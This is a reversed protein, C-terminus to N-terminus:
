TGSASTSSGGCKTADITALYAYRRHSVRRAEIVQGTSPGTVILVGLSPSSAPGPTGVEETDLIGNAPVRESWTREKAPTTRRAYSVSGLLSIRMPVPCGNHVRVPFAPDFAALITLLVLGFVTVRARSVLQLRRVFLEAPQRLDEYRGASRM